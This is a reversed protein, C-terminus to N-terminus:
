TSESKIGSVIEGVIVVEDDVDTKDTSSLIDSNVFSDLNFDRWDGGLLVSDIDIDNFESVNEAVLGVNGCSDSLSVSFVPSDNEERNTGRENSCSPVPDTSAAATIVDSTLNPESPGELTIKDCATLNPEFTVSFNVKASGSLKFTVSIGSM